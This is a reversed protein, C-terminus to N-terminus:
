LIEANTAHQLVHALAKRAGFEADGKSELVSIDLAPNTLASPKWLFKLHRGQTMRGWQPVPM